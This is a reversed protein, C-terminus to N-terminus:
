LDDMLGLAFAFRSEARAVSRYRRAREEAEALDSEAAALRAREEALLREAHVRAAIQYPMALIEGPELGRRWGPPLLLGDRTWDWGQWAAPLPCPSM